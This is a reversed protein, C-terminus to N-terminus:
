WTFQMSSQFLMSRETYSSDDPMMPAARCESGRCVSSAMAQQPALSYRWGLFWGIRHPFTPPEQLRHELELGFGVQGEVRKSDAPVIREPENSSPDLWHNMTVLAGGEVYFSLLSNPGVWRPGIRLVDFRGMVGLSNGDGLSTETLGSNHYTLYSYEAEITLRGFRRGAAVSLGLASANVGDRHIFGVQTGLRVESGSTEHAAYPDEVFDAHMPDDLHAPDAWARHGGTFALCV